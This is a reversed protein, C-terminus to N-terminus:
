KKWNAVDDKTGRKRDPGASELRYEDSMPDGKYHRHHTYGIPRKWHDVLEKRGNNDTDRVPPYNSKKLYPGEFRPARLAAYLDESGAIEGAGPPYVGWDSEYRQIAASIFNIITRTNSVEFRRRAVTV